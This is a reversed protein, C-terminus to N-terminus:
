KLMAYGQIDLTIRQFLHDLRFIGYCRRKIVKIKNNLGEVFGSSQRSIFYHAIEDFHYRLTKIFTSFCTLTSAEVRRIWSKLRRVGSARSVAEDFLRTLETSYHYAQDLAASHCFLRDIVQQDRDTLDQPARRLAWMAGKLLCYDAASLCSKLRKLEQKRLTDLSKRYLKAVHFRDIVVRVRQGFVEKSANIYGEYMDTCVWRITQKLHEPITKLFAKVAEKKRSKLM